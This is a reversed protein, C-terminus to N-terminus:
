REAFLQRMWTQLQRPREWMCIHMGLPLIQCRSREMQAASWQGLKWPILPDLRGLVVLVPCRVRGYFPRLDWDQLVERMLYATVASGSALVGEPHAIWDCFPTFYSCVRFPLGRPIHSASNFIVLHSFWDPHEAAMRVGFYGGFSHAVLRIPKPQAAVFQLLQQYLEDLSHNHTWPSRGHGPLDACAIRHDHSFWRLLPRYNSWNGTAGHLCVLSHAQPQGGEVTHLWAQSSLAFRRHIFNVRALQGHASNVRETAKAQL